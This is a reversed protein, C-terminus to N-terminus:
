FHYGSFQNFNNLFEVTIGCFHEKLGIFKVLSTEQPPELVHVIRAM